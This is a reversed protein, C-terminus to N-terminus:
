LSQPQHEKRLLDNVSKVPNFTILPVEVFVTIWNAMAGNWLGPLEQAKLIKGDKSKEAIFGTAPDVFHRLDFKENRYNYTWCVLDVPNFHTSKKFIDKYTKEKLNIQSSEVIQLSLAGSKDKVWFPGGGPEGENRVMGCVRIPRDLFRILEKSWVEMSNENKKPLVIFYKRELLEALQLIDEDEVKSSIKNLITQTIEKIKLLIGAIVMKYNVTEQKLHDPVINDINKIFILPEIRDNLNEILAGHGGPRFLMSGDSNRFPENNEDVAITDTSKKQVSFTLDYKVSYQYEYQSIVKAVLQNFGEIHEPSVTLHIQVTREPTSAYLAGEVLHEELSTRSIDQYQHFLLLGKPMSGYNLGNESLLADLLEVFKKQEILNKTSKGVSNLYHELEPYFAFQDIHAFFHYASSFSRDEFQSYGKKGIEEICEFLSKFMRSAAGSAPVFKLRKGTYSQYEQIYEKVHVDDLTVIGNGPTAPLTIESFPFGKKFNEIQTIIKDSSIGYQQLQVEDKDKIEM